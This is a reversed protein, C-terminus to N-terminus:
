DLMEIDYLSFVGVIVELTEQDGRAMIAYARAPTSTMPRDVTELVIGGQGKQQSQGGLGRGKDRTSPPEASRGRNNSQPNRNDRSEKPFNTM